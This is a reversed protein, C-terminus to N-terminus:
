PTLILNRGEVRWGSLSSLFNMGLVNMDGFADSMHLALDERVIHGVKLREARGRQVEVLGNATQVVAPFRSSQTIGARRATDASISTTTAGSDVLFRVNQGNLEADVWFHGDLSQKIRLEGGQTVGTSEARREDMVQQAFGVIDDKLTFAVFAALFIIVWGAFMKLGQGIPVRRVMFASAVFVLIAILYIFEASQEGNM